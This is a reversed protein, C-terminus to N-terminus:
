QVIWYTHLRTKYTGPIRFNIGQHLCSTKHGQYESILESTFVHHKIGRTNQSEDIYIIFYRAFPCCLLLDHWTKWSKLTALISM